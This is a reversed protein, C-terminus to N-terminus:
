DQMFRELREKLRGRARHLRVEVANRSLGLLAAMEDVPMEELYHLVVLERDRPPLKGVARSVEECTERDAATAAAITRDAKRRLAAFRALWQRQHTRCQNVTVAVLWAELKAGTAAIRRPHSILRALVDQVVDQADGDASWGLLRHALRVMRPGHIRALEEFAAREGLRLRTLLLQDQEEALRVGSGLRQDAAPGKVKLVRGPTAPKCSFGRSIAPSIPM